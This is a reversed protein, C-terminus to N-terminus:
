KALQLRTCLVNTVDCRWLDGTTSNVVFGFNSAASVSFDNDDSQARARDARGIFLIALAILAFGILIAHPTKM